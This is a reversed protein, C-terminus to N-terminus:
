KRLLWYFHPMWLDYLNSNICQLLLFSLKYKLFIHIKIKINHCRSALFETWFPRCINCEPETEHQLISQYLCCPINNKIPLGGWHSFTKWKHTSINIGFQSLIACSSSPNIKHVLILCLILFVFFNSHIKCFFVFAMKIWIFPYSLFVNLTISMM